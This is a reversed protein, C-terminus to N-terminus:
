PLIRPRWEGLPPFPFFILFARGVLDERRVFPQPENRPTDVVDSKALRRRVGYSDYFEWADGLDHINQQSRDDDLRVNDDAVYEQVGAATRVRFVKATWLRSDRSQNTNDGLMFYCGAPVHWDGSGSDSYKLDHDIKLSSLRAKGGEVGLWVREARGEINTEDKTEIRAVLRGDRWVRVVRDAVGFGLRTASSGLGDADLKRKEAGPSTLWLGDRKCELEVRRGGGDLRVLVAGGGLAAPDVDMTVRTDSYGPNESLWGTRGTEAEGTVGDQTDYTWKAGADATFADSMGGGPWTGMENPVVPFWLTDQVEEPKAVCKGDAYIDGNKNQIHEGPLGVLRKIFNTPRFLPYKFVMISWRQPEGFLLPAKSALLRDGRRRGYDDGWITPQMSGTPIKFAEFAFERVLLALIFATAISEVVDATTEEDADPPADARNGRSLVRAKMWFFGIDAAVLAAFAAIWLAHTAVAGVVLVGLSTAVVLPRRVGAYLLIGALALVAATMYRQTLTSTGAPGSVPFFFVVLVALTIAVFAGRRVASRTPVSHGPVLQLAAEGALEVPDM